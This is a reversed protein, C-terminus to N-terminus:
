HENSVPTPIAQLNGSPLLRDTILFLLALITIRLNNASGTGGGSRDEDEMNKRLLHAGIAMFAIMYVILISADIWHM